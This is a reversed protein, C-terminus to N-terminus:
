ACFNKKKGKGKEKENTTRKDPSPYTTALTSNLFPTAIHLSM